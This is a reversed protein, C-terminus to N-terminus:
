APQCSCNECRSSEDDQLACVEEAYGCRSLSVAGKERTRWFWSLLRKHGGLPCSSTTHEQPRQEGEIGMSSGTVRACEALSYWLLLPCSTATLSLHGRFLIQCHQSRLIKSVLGESTLSSVSPRPTGELCRGM